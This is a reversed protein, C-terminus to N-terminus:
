LRAPAKTPRLLGSAILLSGNFSKVNIKDHWEGDLIPESEKGKISVHLRNESMEVNLDDAKTEKPLPIVVWLEVLNQNWIYKETVGGCKYPEEGKDKEWDEKKKDKEKEERERKKAEIKELIERLEEKLGQKEEKARQKEALAERRKQM